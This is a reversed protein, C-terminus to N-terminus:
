PEPNLRAMANGLLHAFCASYRSGLCTRTSLLSGHRNKKHFSLASSSALQGNMLYSLLASMFGFDSCGQSFQSFGGQSNFSSLWAAKSVQDALSRPGIAKVGVWDSCLSTTVKLVM